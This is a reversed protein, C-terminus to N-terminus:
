LLPIKGSEIIFNYKEIQEPYQIINAPIRLKYQQKKKLNGVNVIHTEIIINKSDYCVFNIKLDEVKQLATVTATIETKTIKEDSIDIENSTAKIKIFPLIAICIVISLLIIGITAKTSFKKKTTTETIVTEKIVTEKTTKTDM